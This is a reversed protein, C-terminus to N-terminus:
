FRDIQIDVAFFVDIGNKCSQIREDDFLRTIVDSLKHPVFLVIHPSYTKCALPLGKEKESKSM